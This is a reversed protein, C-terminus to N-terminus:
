CTFMLVGVIVENFLIDLLCSHGFSESVASISVRIGGEIRGREERAWRIHGEAVAQVFHRAETWSDFLPGPYGTWEACPCLTSACPLVTSLLCCVAFLAYWLLPNSVIIIGCLLYIISGLITTSFYLSCSHYM